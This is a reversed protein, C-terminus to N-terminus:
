MKRIRSLANGKRLKKEAKLLTAQLMETDEERMSTEKILEDIMGRMKQSYDLRNRTKFCLNSSFAESYITKFWKDKEESWPKRLHHKTILDRLTEQSKHYIDALENQKGPYSVVCGVAKPNIGNRKFAVQNEKTMWWDDPNEYYELGTVIAIAPVNGGCIVRDFLIWNAKSNEKIRGRMCYILLSVGDLERILSYLKQISKWHPVRGQDGENLGATDYVKFTTNGITADYANNEFTCGMATCSVKAVDNGGVIMNVLSSKGAGAEGFLIINHSPM